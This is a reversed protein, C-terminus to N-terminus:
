VSWKVTVRASVPLVVPSVKVTVSVSLVPWRDAVVMPPPSVTLPAPLVLRTIVPVSLWTCASRLVSVSVLLVAPVSVMVTCAESLKPLLEVDVRDVMATVTFATASAGVSVTPAVACTLSSVAIGSETAAASVSMSPESVSLTVTLPM